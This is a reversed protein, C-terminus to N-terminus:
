KPRPGGGGFFPPRREGLMKKFEEKQQPSLTKQLDLLTDIRKLEMALREDNIAKIYGHVATRDPADKSLELRLKDELGKIKEMTAKFEAQRQKPDGILLKKQDESLNLRKAIMAGPERKEPPRRWAATAPGSFCFLVLLGALAMLGIKNRM